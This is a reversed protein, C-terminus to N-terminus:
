PIVFTLQRAEEDRGWDEHNFDNLRSDMDAEPEPRVHGNAEECIMRYCINWFERIQKEPHKYGLVQAGHMIHQIYHHPLSDVRRLFNRVVETWRAWDSLDNVAMFSNPQDQTTMLRGSVASRLVCGRYARQLIKVPHDKDIGDPGRIASLLVTQQQFTLNFM